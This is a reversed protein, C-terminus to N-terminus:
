PVTAATFAVFRGRDISGHDGVLRVKRSLSDDYVRSRVIGWRHKFRYIKAQPISSGVWVGVVDTKERAVYLKSSM